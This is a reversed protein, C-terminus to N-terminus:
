HLRARAALPRDPRGNGLGTIIGPLLGTVEGTGMAILEPNRTILGRLLLWPARLLDRGARRAIFLDGRRLWKGYFAGQGRSYRRYLAPLDDPTHRALHGVVITPDYVIPVGARLARHAWENDEGATALSPHEDFWGVRDLLNVAFAMNPPFLVDGLLLPATYTAPEPDTKITLVIGEGEPEVRGTLIVDGVQPLRVALRELWDKRVRCDDHTVAAYTTEVRELGRNTAASIGTERSAVHVANLGRARLATVRDAVDPRCGQDVVILQAPWVRGAALSDLCSAVVPGGTTPVIVTVREAVPRSGVNV